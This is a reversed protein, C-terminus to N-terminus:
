CSSQFLSIKLQHQKYFHVLIVPTKASLGTLFSLGPFPRRASGLGAAVVLPQARRVGNIAELLWSNPLLM